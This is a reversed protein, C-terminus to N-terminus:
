GEAKMGGQARHRNELWTEPIRARQGPRLLPIASGNLLAQENPVLIWLTPIGGPRGVRERLAELLEMRHYRALLGPYIVLLPKEVAVLRADILPMARGVLV